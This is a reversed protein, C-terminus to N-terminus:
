QAIRPLPSPLDNQCTGEEKPRDERCGINASHTSCKLERMFTGSSKSVLKIM